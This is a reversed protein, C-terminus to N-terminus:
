ISLVPIKAIDFGEEETKLTISIVHNEYEFSSSFYTAGDFFKKGVSSSASKLGGSLGTGVCKLLSEKQSWCLAFDYPTKISRAEEENFARSIVAKDFRGIKSIDVGIENGAVGLVVFDGDHSANFFVGAKQPKGKEGYFLREAGTFADVLYNSGLKSLYGRENSRAQAQALREESLKGKILNENAKIDALSLIYLKVASNLIM